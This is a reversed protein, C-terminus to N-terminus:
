GFHLKLVAPCCSVNQGQSGGILHEADLTNDDEDCAKMFIYL